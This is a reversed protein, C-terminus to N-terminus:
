FLEIDGMTLSWQDLPPATSGDLPRCTFVPGLRPVRVFPDLTAITPSIRLLYDASTSGGIRRTLKRLSASTSSGPFTDCLAAEVARGRRRLRFIAFGGDLTDGAALVRYGLTANGYRWRLLEPTRRTHIRGAVVRRAVAAELSAESLAHRAESGATTAVSQRGAASRATLVVYPFRTSTPMIAVPLRGVLTWGMKLYGPLSQSNPTNFVFDIGESGLADLADLTLKRFIGQGQYEPDTATDVARVARLVDGNTGVFEWRLFTRFGVVRKGVEAVWMPSTGFPNALHKWELFSTDSDSWGLARRALELISPFDDASAPRTTVTV